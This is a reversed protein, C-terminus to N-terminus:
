RQCTQRCNLKADIANADFDVMERKADRADGRGFHDPGPNTAGRSLGEFGVDAVVRVSKGAPVDISAKAM